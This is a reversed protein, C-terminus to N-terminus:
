RNKLTIVGVVVTAIEVFLLGILLLPVDSVFTEVYSGIYISGSYLLVGVGGM